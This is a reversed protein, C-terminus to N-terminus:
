RVRALLSHPLLGLLLHRVLALLLHLVRALLPRPVLAVSFNNLAAMFVPADDCAVTYKGQWEARDQFKSSDVDEESLTTMKVHVLQDWHNATTAIQEPSVNLLVSWFSHTVQLLM